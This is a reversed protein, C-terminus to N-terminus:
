NPLNLKSKAAARAEARARMAASLPRALPARAAPEEEPQPTGATNAAIVDASTAPRLWFLDLSVGARAPALESAPFFFRRPSAEVVVVVAALRNLEDTWYKRRAPDSSLVVWFEGRVGDRTEDTYVRYPM